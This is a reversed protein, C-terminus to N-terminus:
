TGALDTGLNRAENTRDPVYHAVSFCVQEWDDPGRELHRIPSLPRDNYFYTDHELIPIVSARSRPAPSKPEQIM